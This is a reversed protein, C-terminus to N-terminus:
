LCNWPGSGWTVLMRQAPSDWAKVSDDTSWCKPNDLHKTRKKEKETQGLTPPM